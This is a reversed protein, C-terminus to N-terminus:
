KKFIYQQASENLTIQPISHVMEVRFCDILDDNTLVLDEGIIIYKQFEYSIDEGHTFNMAEELFFEDTLKKDEKKSKELLVRMLDDLSKTNNSMKIIKNDLWFAFIAGRRYPIKEVERSRWFDELILYNPENKKPNNYHAQIVDENFTKCWEELTLEQSRLRNKYTYYDTFGESFWYNLEEHANRITLGIWQHMMEHNFVYSLVSFANFPNNSSQIMFGNFLASGTTSQGHFLSDNRTVTPSLIVTYYEQTNDKWFNRQTAITKKLAKLMKEDSKYDALWNGRIAFVIPQSQHEFNYLRYDGGVFLSHYFGTHIQEKIVQSRNNSDFTNHIVYKTPFDIWDIKAEIVKDESTFVSEPVIFLGRGLVHFYDNNMRPRNVIQMSDGLYDQRIHYNIRIKKTKPYHVIIRNSDPVFNFKFTPNEKELLQLCNFLNEEGWGSNYYHLYISDQAKKTKHTLEIKLGDKVLDESYFVKYNVKTQAMLFASPACCILLLLSKM